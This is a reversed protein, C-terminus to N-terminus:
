PHKPNASDLGFSSPYQQKSNHLHTMERDHLEKFRDYTKECLTQDAAYLDDRSNMLLFASYLDRQISDGSSLRAWRERLLKKQYSGDTHDYQSAKFSSTVVEQYRGGPLADLKNKLILLFTSPAKQALSKGFRKKKKYRGSATRETEKARRQLGSFNMNEVYVDTGLSLIHNALCTHQYKRIAANKRELERVKGQRVEYKKSKVWKPRQGKPYRRITGDPNFQDPNTRRRSADLRRQLECKREHNENIRDALELLEVRDASVIAATRPGIDIGVRGQGIPREKQVPPGALTVQLYYKYRTKMWKRVIRLYRMPKELMRREYDTDPEAVRIKLSIKNPTQGGNWEFFGNRFNMGNGIKKCAISDLTGRRTFHVDRGTNFLYKDFAQWVDSAVKHAIQAAFHEQFHKQMPTMDNIFDFESFGAERLVAQRQRYLASRQKKDTEEAIKQELARFAKTRRLNKLKRLEMAILSNKLHEMIKFRTEIIHEQWPETILPLTLVCCGSENNTKKAM